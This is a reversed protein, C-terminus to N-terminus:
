SLVLSDIAFFKQSVKGRVLIAQSPMVAMLLKGKRPRLKGM